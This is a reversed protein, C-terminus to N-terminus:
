IRLITSKLVALEPPPILPNLYIISKSVLTLSAKEKFFDGLFSQGIKSSKSINLVSLHGDNLCCSSATGHHLSGPLTLLETSGSSQISQNGECGDADVLFNNASPATKTQNFELSILSNFCFGSAMFFVASVILLSIIKISYKKM